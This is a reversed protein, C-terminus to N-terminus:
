SAICQLRKVGFPMEFANDRLIFRVKVFSASKINVKVSLNNLSISNWVAWCHISIFFADWLRYCLLMLMWKCDYKTDLLDRQFITACLLVRESLLGSLDTPRARPVTGQYFGQLPVAVVTEMRLGWWTRHVLIVPADCGVNTCTHLILLNKVSIFFLVSFVFGEPTLPEEYEFIRSPFSQYKEVQVRNEFPSLM